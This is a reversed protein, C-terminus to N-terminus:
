ESQTYLWGVGHQHGSSGTSRVLVRPQGRPNSRLVEPCEFLALNSTDSDTTGRFCRTIRPPKSQHRDRAGLFPAAATIRQQSGQHHGHQIRIRAREHIILLLGLLLNSNATRHVPQSQSRSSASECHSAPISGSSVYATGNEGCQLRRDPFRATVGLLGAASPVRRSAVILAISARLVVQSRAPEGWRSGMTRAM